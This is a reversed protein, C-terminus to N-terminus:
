SIMRDQKTQPTTQEASGYKARDVATGCTGSQQARGPKLGKGNYGTAAAAVGTSSAMVNPVILTDTDNDSSSSSLRELGVAGSTCTTDAAGQLPVPNPVGQTDDTGLNGVGAM